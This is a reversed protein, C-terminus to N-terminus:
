ELDVTLEGDGRRQGHVDHGGIAKAREVRGGPLQVRGIEDDVRLHPLAAGECRDRRGRRGLGVGEGEGVHRPSATALTAAPRPPLAQAGRARRHRTGAQAGRARKHPM